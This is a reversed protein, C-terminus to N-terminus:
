ASFLRCSVKLVTYACMRSEVNVTGIIRKVYIIMKSHHTHVLGRRYIGYLSHGVNAMDLMFM